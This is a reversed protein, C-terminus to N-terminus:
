ALTGFAKWAGAGTYVWGWQQGSTPSQVQVTVGATGTWTPTDLGLDEDATAQVVFTSAPANVVRNGRFSGQAARTNFAGSSANGATGCTDAINDLFDMRANRIGFGLNGTNHALNGAMRGSVGTTTANAFNYACSTATGGCDVVNNAIVWREGYIDLGRGGIGQYATVASSSATVVNGTVTLDNMPVTGAVRWLGIGETTQGQVTNGTITYGSTASGGHRVLIGRTGGSVTNGTIAVAVRAPSGTSTNNSVQIGFACDKTTNGSITLETCDTTAIGARALSSDDTEVQDYFVNGTISLGRCYAGYFGCTYGKAVNGAITVDLALAGSSGAYVLLAYAGASSSTLGADEVNNGLYRVRKFGGSAATSICVAGQKVASAEFSNGEVLVDSVVGAVTSRAGFQAAATGIATSDRDGGGWFTNQKVRVRSQGYTTTQQVRVWAGGKFNDFYCHRVELGEVAATGSTDDWYIASGSLGDSTSINNGHFWINHVRTNNCNQFRFLAGDTSGGISVKSAKGVGNFTVNNADALAMATISFSGAPVYVEGGGNAKAAAAASAFAVTDTVTGGARYENINYVGLGLRAVSDYSGPVSTRVSVVQQQATVVVTSFDPM